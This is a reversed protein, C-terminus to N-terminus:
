NFYDAINFEDIKNKLLLILGDTPNFNEWITDINNVIECDQCNCLIKLNNEENNETMEILEEEFNNYINDVEKLVDQIKENLNPTDLFIITEIKIFTKVLDFSLETNPDFVGRHRCWNDLKLFANKFLIILISKITEEINYNKETYFGNSGSRLFSYDESM